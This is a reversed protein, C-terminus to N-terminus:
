FIQDSRPQSRSILHETILASILRREVEGASAKLQHQHIGLRRQFQRFLVAQFDQEDGFLSCFAPLADGDGFAGAIELRFKIPDDLLQDVITRDLLQLILVAQRSLSHFENLIQQRGEIEDNLSQPHGDANCRNRQCCADHDADNQCDRADVTM